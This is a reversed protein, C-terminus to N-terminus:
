LVRTPYRRDSDHGETGEETPFRDVFLEAAIGAECFGACVLEAIERIFLNSKSTVFLHVRTVVVSASEPAAHRAAAANREIEEQEGAELSLNPQPASNHERLKTRLVREVTPFGSRRVFGLPFAASETEFLKRWVKDHDRVELRFTFPGFPLSAIEVLFGSMAAEPLHPYTAGIAPRERKRHGKYTRARRGRPQVMARLGHIPKGNRHLLWGTLELRSTFIRPEPLADLHFLYDRRCDEEM